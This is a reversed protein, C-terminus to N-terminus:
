QQLFHCSWESNMLLRLFTLVTTSNNGNTGELQHSYSLHSWVWLKLLSLSLCCPGFECNWSLSLSAVPLVLVMLDKVDREKKRALTKFCTSVLDHEHLRWPALVTSRPKWCITNMGACFLHNLFSLCSTAQSSALSPLYVKHPSPSSILHGKEACFL